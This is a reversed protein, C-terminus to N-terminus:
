FRTNYHGLSTWMVSVHLVLQRFFYFKNHNATIRVYINVHSTRRHIHTRTHEERVAARGKFIPGVPQGSVDSVVLICQTVYWFLSFICAGVCMYMYVYSM